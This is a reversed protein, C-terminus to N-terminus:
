RRGSPITESGDARRGLSRLLAAIGDLSLVRDVPTRALASLPMSAAIATEPEQVVTTGGARHIAEMGSAGDENAGTLLIGLLRDEYVDAASEFLVDISPRSYHVLDDASLALRPGEDVLLHYDPPAFYITGAEVAEKDEAERVPLDCRLKFIDVLLSPRDRPQHLVVFVPAALDTPLAPLLVSLAEVGGASAGIAIGRIRGLDRDMATV